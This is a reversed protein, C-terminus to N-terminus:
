RHDISNQPETPDLWRDPQFLSTGMTNMLTQKIKAAAAPGDLAMRRIGRKSYQGAPLVWIQSLAVALSIQGSRHTVLTRPSQLHISHILGNEM